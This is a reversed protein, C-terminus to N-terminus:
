ALAAGAAGALTVLAMNTAAQKNKASWQPGETQLKNPLSQQQGKCDKFNNKSTPKRQNCKRHSQQKLGSAQLVKCPAKWSTSLSRQQAKSALCCWMNDTELFLWLIYDGAGYASAKDMPGRPRSACTCPLM